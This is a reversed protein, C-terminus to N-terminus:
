HYATLSHHSPSITPCRDLKMKLCDGWKLGFPKIEKLRMNSRSVPDRIPKEGRKKTQMHAKMRLFNRM